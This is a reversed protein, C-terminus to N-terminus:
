RIENNAAIYSSTYRKLLLSQLTQGEWYIHTYHLKVVPLPLINFLTISIGRRLPCCLCVKQILVELIHQCYDVIICQSQSTNGNVISSNNRLTTCAILRTFHQVWTLVKDLQLVEELSSALDKLLRDTSWMKKREGPWSSLFRGGIVTFSFQERLHIEKMFIVSCSM